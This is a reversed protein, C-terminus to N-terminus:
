SRKTIQENSLGDDLESKQLEPLDEISLAEERLAAPEHLTAELMYRARASSIRQSGQASAYGRALEERYIDYSSPSLAHTTSAARASPM